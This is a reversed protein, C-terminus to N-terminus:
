RQGRLTCGRDEGSGCSGIATLQGCGSGCRGSRIAACGNGRHRLQGGHLQATRHGHGPEVRLVGPAARIEDGHLRRALDYILGLTLLSSLLSPLLFALRWSGTLAHATAQMWMYMPPKDSYLENGRHPFLWDGSEVMQKAVLAFRPEDAPWPDRLGIGAGILVLAFALLLWYRRQQREGYSM